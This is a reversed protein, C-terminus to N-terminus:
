QCLLLSRGLSSVLHFSHCLLLLDRCMVGSDGLGEWLYLYCSSRRCLALCRKCERKYKNKVEECSAANGSMHNQYKVNITCDKTEHSNYKAFPMDVDKCLQCVMAVGTITRKQDYKSSKKRPIAGKSHSKSTDKALQELKAKKQHTELIMKTDRVAKDKVELRSLLVQLWKTGTMSKWDEDKDKLSEKYSTLLVNFQSRRQEDFSVPQDKKAWKTNLTDDDRKHPPPM